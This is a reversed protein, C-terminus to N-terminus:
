STRQADVDALRHALDEKGMESRGDVGREEALEDLEARTLSSYHEERRKRSHDPDRVVEGRFGGTEYGRQEIFDRFSRLDIKARDKVFGGKDAVQEVLGHPDVELQLVIRTRDDDLAHFTVVGSNDTGDTAVWAIRQDPTQETIEAEWERSVGLIKAKFRVHTDDLQEVESVHDMFLPFDTFQTWQNYATRVPVAVDIDAIM